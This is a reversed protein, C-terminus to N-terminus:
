GAEAMAPAGITSAMPFMLLVMGGAVYFPLGRGFADMLMGAAIPFITRTVGGFTYQVGFYLGRQPGPVIRSLIGGLCPFLFATGLPMLTFGSVLIAWNRAIGTVALGIALVIIGIRALRAEGVKAVIKGLFGARVVVGIFAVYAFVWGMSQATIGFRQSLLLPLVPGTGYFAGVAVAYIWILRPAPEHWRTLVHMVAGGSTTAAPKGSPTTMSASHRTGRSERLFRWAFVATLVSLAAAGIGPAHKGFTVLLSGLAPGGIAGASTVSTLWGLSRTRDEPASVDAVYANVVGITGGGVGQIMRSLLLLWLSDAWAFVLYSVATIGLGLLIAPRRGLRDSMKGWAPACLLQALSFAGVLLGVVTASAGLTTAYFPLLPLIMVAGIMDVFAVIFLIILRAM